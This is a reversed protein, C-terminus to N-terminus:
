PAVARQGKNAWGAGPPPCCSKQGEAVKAQPLKELAQRRFEKNAQRVHEATDEIWCDKRAAQM